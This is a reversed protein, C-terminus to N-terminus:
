PFVSLVGFAVTIVNIKAGSAIYAALSIAVGILSLVARVVLHMNIETILTM